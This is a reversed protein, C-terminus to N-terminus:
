QKRYNDKHFESIDKKFEKSDHKVAGHSIQISCLALLPKTLVEVLGPNQELQSVAYAVCEVTSLCKDNPQTKVVYLSKVNLDLKMKPLTQLIPSWNYMKKAEDWTGDLVILVIKEDCKVLEQPTKADEKPFLVHAGPHKLWHKLRDEEKDVDKIKRRVFIQCNELGNELMKATRIQRKHENPHQLIVIQTKNLKIKPKSVYDCWCTRQPRECIDCFSRRSENSENSDFEVNEFALVDM